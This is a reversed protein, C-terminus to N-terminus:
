LWIKGSHSVLHHQACIVPSQVSRVDLEDDKRNREERERMQLSASLAYELGTQRHQKLM